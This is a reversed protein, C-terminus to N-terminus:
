LRRWVFRARGREDVVIVRPSPCEVERQLAAVVCGYFDEAPGIAKEIPGHEALNDLWVHLPKIRSLMFRARERALEKASWLGGAISRLECDIADGEDVGTACLDIM